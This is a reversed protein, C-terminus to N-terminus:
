PSALSPDIEITFSCGNEVTFGNQLIVQEGARVTVNGGPATVSFGSGVTISRCAEVLETSCMTQSNLVVDDPFGCGGAPACEWLSIPLVVETSDCGTDYVRATITTESTGAPYTHTAPFSSRDSTGDGWTWDLQEILYPCSVASDALAIGDLQVQCGEIFSPPEEGCTTPLTLTLTPACIGHSTVHDIDISSNDLKIPDRVGLEQVSASAQNVCHSFEGSSKTWTLVTFMITDGAEIDVPVGAELDDVTGNAPCRTKPGAVPITNCSWHTSARDFVDFDLEIRVRAGWADSPGHNEVLVSYGVLDVPELDDEDNDITISLDALEPHVVWLEKGHIPDDAVILLSGGATFFLGPSWGAVPSTTVVETGLVTADSRWIQREFGDYARFYERRNVEVGLFTESGCVGPCIDRSDYYGAETDFFWLESGTIGDDGIFFLADGTYHLAWLSFPFGLVEATGVSTGDTMWYETWKHPIVDYDVIDYSFFIRDGAYATNNPEGEPHLEQILTAGSGTTVYLGAPIEENSPSCYPGGDLYHIFLMKEDLPPLFRTRGYPADPGPCLELLIGTGGPTGDTRYLEAGTEERWAEFAAFENTGYLYPGSGGYFRAIEATGAVTGDSSCLGWGSDPSRAATFVLRGSVIPLSGIVLGYGTADEFLKFTGEPTGDTRWLEWDNVLLFVIDGLPEPVAKVKHGGYLTPPIEKVVQTGAETGDTRWLAGVTSEDQAPVFFLLQEGLYLLVEPNSSAGGLNIDSVMVTGETTWDTKWLERGHVGDDAVFYIDTLGDDGCAWHDLLGPNYYYLRSAL